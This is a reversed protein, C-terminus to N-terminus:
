SPNAASLDTRRGLEDYWADLSCDTCVYHSLGDTRTVVIAADHAGCRLCLRTVSTIPSTM